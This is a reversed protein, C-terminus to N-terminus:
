SCLSVNPLLVSISQNLALASYNHLFYRDIARRRTDYRYYMTGSFLYIKDGQRWRAFKNGPWVLAADVKTEAPLGYNEVPQAEEILRFHKYVYYRLYIFM